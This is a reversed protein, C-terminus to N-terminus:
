RASKSSFPALGPRAVNWWALSVAFLVATVYIILVQWNGALSFTPFVPNYLLVTAAFLAAVAYRHAQLAQLAEVAAGATIIFRLATEYPAIYLPLAATVLLTAICAWKMVKTFRSAIREDRLRNKEQWRGWVEGDLPRWSVDPVGPSTLLTNPNSM